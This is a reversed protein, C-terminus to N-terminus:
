QYYEVLVIFDFSITNCLEVKTMKYYFKIPASSLLQLTKYSPKIFYYFMSTLMLVLSDVGLMIWDCSTFSPFISYLICDKLIIRFVNSRPIGVSRKYKQYEVFLLTKSGRYLCNINDVDDHHFVSKTGGSSFWM